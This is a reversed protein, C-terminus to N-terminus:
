PGIPLPILLKVFVEDQELGVDLWTHRCAPPLAGSDAAARIARVLGVSKPFEVAQPAVNRLRFILGGAGCQSDELVNSPDLLRAVAATGTADVVALPQLSIQQEGVKFTVQTIREADAQIA